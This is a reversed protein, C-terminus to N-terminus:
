IAGNDALDRERAFESIKNRIDQSLAQFVGITEVKGDKTYFERISVLTKGNWEDVTVKRRASLPWERKEGVRAKKTPPAAAM